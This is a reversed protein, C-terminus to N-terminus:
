PVCATDGGFYGANSIKGSVELAGDATTAVAFGYRLPSSQSIAAAGTFYPEGNLRTVGAAFEQPASWDAPLADARTQRVLVGGAVRWRVCEYGFAEDRGAVALVLDNGGDQSAFELANRVDSRLVTTMVQSDNAGGTVASVTRESRFLSIVLATVIALVIGLVVIYVALEVLSLGDDGRAARGKM